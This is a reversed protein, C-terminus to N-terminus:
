GQALNFYENSAALNSWLTPLQGSATLQSIWYTAGTSDAMRDLVLCYSGSAIDDSFELATSTCDAQSSLGRVRIGVAESGRLITVAVQRRTKVATDLQNTYYDWGSQDPERFLIDSYLSDVFERNSSGVLSFYAASGLVDAETALYNWTSQLAADASSAESTTASRALYRQFTGDIWITRWTSSQFLSTVYSSRSNGGLYTSGWLLESSTPGRLFFDNYLRIVYNENATLAQAPASPVVVLLISLLLSVVLTAGRWRTVTGAPSTAGLM